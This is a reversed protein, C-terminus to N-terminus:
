IVTKYSLRLQGLVRLEYAKACLTSLDCTPFVVCFESSRSRGLSLLLLFLGHRWIWFALPAVSRIM